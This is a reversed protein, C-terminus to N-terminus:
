AMIGASKLNAILQSIATACSEATASDSTFSVSAAQKVGGAASSTAAPLTYPTGAGIAERAAAADSAKMLRKGIDTAGSLTDVSPAAGGTGGSVYHDAIFACIEELTDPIDTEEEGTLAVAVQKMAAELNSM